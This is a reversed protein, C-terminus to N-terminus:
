LVDCKFDPVKKSQAVATCSVAGTRVVYSDFKEEFSKALSNYLIEAAQGSISSDGNVCFFASPQKSCTISDLYTVLVDGGLYQAEETLTILNFILGAIKSDTIAAEKAQAHSVFTFALIALLVSKM